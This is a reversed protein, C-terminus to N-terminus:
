HSGPAPIPTSASRSPTPRGCVPRRCVVMKIGDQDGLGTFTGNGPAPNSVYITTGTDDSSMAPSSWCTPTPTATASFPTSPSTAPVKMTAMSWWRDAPDDDRINITGYNFFEVSNNGSGIEVFASGTNTLDLVGGPNQLLTYQDGVELADGDHGEGSRLVFNDTELDAFRDSLRLVSTGSVYVLGANNGWDFGYDDGTLDLRRIASWM